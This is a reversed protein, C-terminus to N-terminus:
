FDRPHNGPPIGAWGETPDGLTPITVNRGAQIAPTYRWISAGGKAAHLHEGTSLPLPSGGCSWTSQPQCDALSHRLRESGRQAKGSARLRKCGKLQTGGEKTGQKSRPWPAPVFPWQTGRGALTNGYPCNIGFKIKINLVFM